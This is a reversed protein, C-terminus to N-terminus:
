KEGKEKQERYKKQREQFALERKRNREEYAMALNFKDMKTYYKKVM